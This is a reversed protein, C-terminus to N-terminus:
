FGEVLAKQAKMRRELVEVFEKQEDEKFGSVVELFAAEVAQIREINIIEKNAKTLMQSLKMSADLVSKVEGVTTTERVGGQANLISSRVARVMQLQTAMEDRLNFEEDLNVPAHISIEDSLLLMLDMPVEGLSVLTIMELTKNRIVNVEETKDRVEFNDPINHPDFDPSTTPTPPLSPSIAPTSKTYKSKTSSLAM